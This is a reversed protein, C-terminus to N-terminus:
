WGPSRYRAPHYPPEHFPSSSPPTHPPLPPLPAARPHEQFLAPPPPPLLVFGRGFFRTGCRRRTPSRPTPGSQSRRRRRRGPTTPHRWNAVPCTRHLHQSAPRRVSTLARALFIDYSLSRSRSVGTVMHVSRGFLFVGAEPTECVCTPVIPWTGRELWTHEEVGPLSYPSLSSMAQRFLQTREPFCQGSAGGADQVAGLGKRGVPRHCDRPRAHPPCVRAAKTHVM